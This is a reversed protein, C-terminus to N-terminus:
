RRIAAPAAASAVANNMSPTNIDVVVWDGVEQVALHNETALRRIATAAQQALPGPWAALTQVVVSDEPNAFITKLPKILSEPLLSGHIWLETPSDSRGVVPLNLPASPSSGQFIADAIEMFAPTTRAILRRSGPWRPLNALRTQIEVAKNLQALEENMFNDFQANIRQMAKQRIIATIEPRESAVQEAARRHIIRGILGGRNPNISDTFTQSNAAIRTPLAYFGKGPEFVIEKSATFRTISHSHVTVQPNHGITRCYIAGDFVANFCAKDPSPVPYMRLKGVLRGTGTVPTGLIIDSVTRQGDVDRNIRAAL